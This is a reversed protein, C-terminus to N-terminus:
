ESGGEVGTQTCKHLAPPPVPASSLSRPSSLIYACDNVDFLTRPQHQQQQMLRRRRGILVSDKENPRASLSFFLLVSSLLSFNESEVSSPTTCIYVPMNVHQIPIYIPTRASPSFFLTPASKVRAHVVVVVAAPAATAYNEAVRERAGGYLQVPVFNTIRAYIFSAFSATRPHFSKQLKGCTAEHSVTQPHEYLPYMNIYSQLYIHADQTARATYSATLVPAHHAHTHTCMTAPRMTGDIVSFANLYLQSISRQGLSGM